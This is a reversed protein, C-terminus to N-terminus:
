RKNRERRSTSRILFRKEGEKRIQIMGDEELKILIDDLERRTLFTINRLTRAKPVWKGNSAKQIIDLVRARMQETRNEFINNDIIERMNRYSLLVVSIAWVVANERVVYRSGDKESALFTLKKAQEVLRTLSAGHIEQSTSYPQELIRERASKVRESFKKLLDSAEKEFTRQPTEDSALNCQKEILPVLGEPIDFTWNPNEELCRLKEYMLFYRPLLGSTFDRPVFATLINPTSTALECFFPRMIPTLDAGKSCPPTISTPNNFLKLKLEEVALEHHSITKSKMAEAAYAAEDNLLFLCADRAKLAEVIGQQSILKSAVYKQQELELLLNEIGQFVQTKGTGTPGISLAMFNTNLKEKKPMTKRMLFGGTVITAALAYVPNVYLSCGSLYQFIGNLFPIPMEQPDVRPFDQFDSGLDSDVDNKEEDVDEPTSDEEVDDGCIDPVDNAISTSVSAYARSDFRSTRRYGNEQALYILTGITVPNQAREFTKWHILLDHDGKYKASRRSWDNWLSFGQTTGGFHHHLTMGVKVWDHYDDASIFQLLERIEPDELADAEQLFARKENRPKQSAEYEARQLPSLMNDIGLPNLLYGERRAQAQFPQGACRFPPYWMQAITEGAPDLGPPNDLLVLVKRYVAKYQEKPLPHSFPIIMRWRPLTATHSWTTYWFYILRKAYLKDTISEISVFDGDKNDFDLVVGTMSEVNDTGRTTGEKYINFSFQHGEKQRNEKGVIPPFHPTFFTCAEDVSFSRLVPPVKKLGQFFSVHILPQEM